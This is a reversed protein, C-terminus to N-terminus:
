DQINGDKIARDMLKQVDDDEGHMNDSDLESNVIIIKTITTPSTLESLFDKADSSEKLANWYIHDTLQADDGEGEKKKVM